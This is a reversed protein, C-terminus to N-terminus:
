ICVNIDNSFFFFDKNKRHFYLINRCKAFANNYM